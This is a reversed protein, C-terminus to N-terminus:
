NAFEGLSSAAALPPKEQTSEEQEEESSDDLSRGMARRFAERKPILALGGNEEDKVFVHDSFTYPVDFSPYHATRFGYGEQYRSATSRYGLASALSPTQLEEEEEEEDDIVTPGDMIGSCDDDDSSSTWQEPGEEEDRWEACFMACCTQAHQNLAHVNIGRKANGDIWYCDWTRVVSAVSVDSVERVCTTSRLLEELVQKFVGRNSEM